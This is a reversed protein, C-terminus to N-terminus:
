AAIMVLGRILPAHSDDGDLLDDVVIRVRARDLPGTRVPEADSHSRMARRLLAKGRLGAILVSSPLAALDEVRRYDLFPVRREISAGMTM